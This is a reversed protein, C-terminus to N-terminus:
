ASSASAAHIRWAPISEMMWGISTARMWIEIGTVLTLKVFHDADVIKRVDEVSEQVPMLNALIGLVQTKTIEPPSLAFLSKPISPLPFAVVPAPPAQQQASVKPPTAWPLSAFATIKSPDITMKQGELLTLQAFSAASACAASLAFALVASATMLFKWVIQRASM